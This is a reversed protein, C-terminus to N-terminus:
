SGNFVTWINGSPWLPAVVRDRNMGDDNFLSSLALPTAFLRTTHAKQVQTIVKLGFLAMVKNIRKLRVQPELILRGLRKLITVDDLKVITAKTIRLRKKLIPVLDLPRNEFPLRVRKRLTNDSPNSRSITVRVRQSLTDRSLQFSCSQRGQGLPTAHVSRRPRLISRHSEIVSVLLFAPPSRHITIEKPRHHSTKNSLEDTFQAEPFFEKAYFDSDSLNMGLPVLFFITTVDLIRAIKTTTLDKNKLPSTAEDGLAKHATAFSLDKSTAKVRVLHNSPRHRPRCITRNLRKTPNTSGLHSSPDVIVSPQYARDVRHQIASNIIRTARNLDITSDFNSLQSRESSLRVLCYYSFSNM